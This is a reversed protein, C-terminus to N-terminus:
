PGVTEAQPIGNAHAVPRITEAQPIGNAHAVGGPPPTEAQPIGDTTEAQPIGNAHAVPGEITEAQPIGNAHAVPGHVTEAQPIGNAHAVPRDSEAQPIGDDTQVGGQVADLAQEVEDLMAPDIATVDPTSTSTTDDTTSM